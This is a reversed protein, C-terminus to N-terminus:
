MNCCFVYMIRNFSRSKRQLFRCALAEAITSDNIEVKVKYSTDFPQSSFGCSVSCLFSSSHNMTLVVM